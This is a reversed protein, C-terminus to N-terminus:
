PSLAACAGIGKSLGPIIEMGRLKRFAKQRATDANRELEEQLDSYRKAVRKLPNM